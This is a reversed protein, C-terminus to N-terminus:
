VAKYTAYKMVNRHSFLTLNNSVNKEILMLPM